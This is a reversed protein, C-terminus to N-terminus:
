GEDKAAQLAAVIILDAVLWIGAAALVTLLPWIQSLILLAGLQILGNCVAWKIITRKRKASVPPLTAQAPPLAAKTQEEAPFYIPARYIKM